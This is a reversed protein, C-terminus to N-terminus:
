LPFLDINFFFIWVSPVLLWVACLKNRLKRAALVFFTHLEQQRGSPPM